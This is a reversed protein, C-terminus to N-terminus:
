AFVVIEIAWVLSKVKTYAMWTRRNDLRTAFNSPRSHQFILLRTGGACWDVDGGMDPILLNTDEEPRVYLRVDRSVQPGWGEVIPGKYSAPDGHSITV